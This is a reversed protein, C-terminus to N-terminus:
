NAAQYTQQTFYLFDDITELDDIVEYSVRDETILILKENQFKYNLTFCIEGTIVSCSLLAKGQWFVNWLDTDSINRLHIPQRVGFDKMFLENTVSPYIMVFELGIDNVTKCGEYSVVICDKMIGFEINHMNIYGEPYSELFRQISQTQQM